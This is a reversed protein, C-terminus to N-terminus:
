GGGKGAEKPEAPKPAETKGGGSGSDEPAAKELDVVITAPAYEYMAQSALDTTSGFFGGCIINGWFVPEIATNLMFQRSDYGDKKVLLTMASGRRLPGNYPTKGVMVGNALIEAGKVNSDITVIQSTGKLISACGTQMAGSIFLGVLLLHRM